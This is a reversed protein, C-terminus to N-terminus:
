HTGKVVGPYVDVAPRGGLVRSVIADDGGVPPWVAVVRPGEPGRGDGSPFVGLGSAGFGRRCPTSTRIPYACCMGARWRLRGRCDGYPRDAVMGPEPSVVAGALRRRVRLIPASAIPVWSSTQATRSVEVSFDASGGVDRRAGAAGISRCRRCRCRRVLVVGLGATEAVKRDHVADTAALV